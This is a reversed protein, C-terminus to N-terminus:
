SRPRAESTRAIGVLRNWLEYDTDRKAVYRNNPAAEEGGRATFPGRELDNLDLYTGGQELRTGTELISLRTLEDERLDDLRGHLAKDTSAPVSEDEHGGLPATLHGTPDREALDLSFEEDEPEPGSPNTLEERRVDHTRAHRGAPGGEDSYPSREDGPSHDHMQRKPM